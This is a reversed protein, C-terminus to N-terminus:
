NLHVNVHEGDDCHFPASESDLTESWGNSTTLYKFQVRIVVDDEEGVYELNRNDVLHFDDGPDYLTNGIWNEERWKGETDDWYDFDIVKVQFPAGDHEFDNYVHIDVDKCRDAVATGALGGAMMLGAAISMILKRM